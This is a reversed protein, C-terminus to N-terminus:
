KPRRQKHQMVQQTLIAPAVDEGVNV